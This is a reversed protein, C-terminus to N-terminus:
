CALHATLIETPVALRSYRAFFNIAHYAELVIAAEAMQRHSCHLPLLLSALRWLASWPFRTAHRTPSPGRRRWRVCCRSRNLCPRCRCVQPGLHGHQTSLSSHTSNRGLSSRRGQSHRLYCPMGSVLRRLREHQTPSTRRTSTVCSGSQWVRM